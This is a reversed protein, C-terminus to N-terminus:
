PSYDKEPINQLTRNLQDILDQILKEVNKNDVSENFNRKFFEGTWKKILSILKGLIYGFNISGSQLGSIINYVSAPLIPQLLHLLQKILFNSISSALKRAPKSNSNNSEISITEIQDSTEAATLNNNKLLSSMVQKMQLKSKATVPLVAFLRHIMKELAGYELKVKDDTFISTVKLLDQFFLDFYETNLHPDHTENPSALSKNRASAPEFKPEMPIWEVSAM